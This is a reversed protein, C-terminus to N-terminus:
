IGMVKKVTLTTQKQFVLIELDSKSSKQLLSKSYAISDPKSLHQVQLKVNISLQKVTNMVVISM